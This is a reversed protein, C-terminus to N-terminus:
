ESNLCLVDFFLVFFADIRLRSKEMRTINLKDNHFYGGAGTNIDRSNGVDFVHAM